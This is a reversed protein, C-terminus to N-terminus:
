SRAITIVLDGFKSVKLSDGPFIVTTSAYEEVLAPGAIRQGVSLDNRAYVPTDVYGSSETLYVKRVAARAAPRLRTKGSRTLPKAVPKDMIGIVSSHLSVIEASEKPANFDYRKMHVDDFLQKLAARDRQLFLSGPLEVTIPHEQGVYRMDAARTCVIRSRDKIDRELIRIGESEMDTYHKEFENFDLTNVPKFWTRVFDWRLDAMLM